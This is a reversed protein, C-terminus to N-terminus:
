VIQDSPIFFFNIGTQDDMNVLNGNRFVKTKYGLNELFDITMKRMENEWLECYILPTHKTLLNVGGKLVFYEFNEVDIKIGSIRSSGQLEELNDLSKAKVSIQREGSIEDDGKYIHSLGQMKVNKIVPMVMTLEGDSEGLALDFIKVNKLKFFSVVKRLAALNDPMPEFSFVQAQPKERALPVTTIGINAGIDLIIGENPVLNVFHLFDAEASNLKLKKITIISFLFLYNNFGLCKQLM